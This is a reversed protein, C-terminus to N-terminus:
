YGNEDLAIASLIEIVEGSDNIITLEPLRSCSGLTAM